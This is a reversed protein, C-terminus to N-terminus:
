LVKDDEVELKLNDFLTNSGHQAIEGLYYVTQNTQGETEVLGNAKFLVLFRRLQKQSLHDGVIKNIEARKAKGYKKLFPYIVAWVQDIDWDTALSRPLLGGARLVSM